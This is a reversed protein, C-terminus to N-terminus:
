AIKSQKAPSGILAKLEDCVDTIKRVCQAIGNADDREIRNASADEAIWLMALGRGDLNDRISIADIKKQDTVNTLAGIASKIQKATGGITGKYLTNTADAYGRGTVGHQSLVGTFTKRACKGAQRVQQRHQEIIDTQGGSVLSKELEQWRDVLRGTFEPSLQAVVVISDRKGQDGSFVYAKTKQPLGLNNIKESVAMPPLRIVGRKALRGISRRVDSHNSRVLEAIELSTMSNVDSSLVSLSKNTM